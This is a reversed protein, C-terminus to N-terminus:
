IVTSCYARSILQLSYPAIRTDYRTKNKLTAFPIFNKSFDPNSIQQITLQNTPNFYIEMHPRLDYTTQELNLVVSPASAAYGPHALFIFLFLLIFNKLTTKTTLRVNGCGM